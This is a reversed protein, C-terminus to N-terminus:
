FVSEFRSLGMFLEMEAQIHIEASGKQRRRWGHLYNLEFESNILIDLNRVQIALLGAQNFFSGLAGICIWALWWSIHESMELSCTYGLKCCSSTVCPWSHPPHATTAEPLGGEGNVETEWSGEWAWQRGEGGGVWSKGKEKEGGRWTM